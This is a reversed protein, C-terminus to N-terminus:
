NVPSLFDSPTLNARYFHQVTCGPLDFFHDMKVLFGIEQGTYVVGVDDINTFSTDAIVPGTQMFQYM